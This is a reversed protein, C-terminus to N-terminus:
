VVGDDDTAPLKKLYVNEGKKIVAYSKYGRLAMRTSRLVALFAKLMRTAALFLVSYDAERTGLEIIQRQIEMLSLSVATAGILLETVPAELFNITRDIWGQPVEKLQNFDKAVPTEVVPADAPKSEVRSERRSRDRSSRGYTPWRRTGRKRPKKAKKGTGGRVRLADTANDGGRVRMAATRRRVSPTPAAHSKPPTLAHLPAICALLKLTSLLMM